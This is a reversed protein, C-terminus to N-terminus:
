ECAKYFCSSPHQQLTSVSARACIYLESLEPASTDSTNKYKNYYACIYSKTPITEKQWTLDQSIVIYM